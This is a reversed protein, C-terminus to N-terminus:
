DPVRMEARVENISMHLLEAARSEGIIEEELARFVLTRLRQPQETVIEVQENKKGNINFRIFHERFHTESIIGLDKARYVWQQMSMGYKKKLNKLEPYTLSHRREGLEELVTQRPAMFAGSFRYAFKEEDASSDPAYVMHGLEHALTSRQRDGPLGQQLAIFRAGKAMGTFADIKDVNDLQVVKVSRDELIQVLNEVPDSGLNWEERLQEAAEEADSVSDALFPTFSYHQTAPFLSEVVAYRELYESAQELASSLAKKSIGSKKRYRIDTIALSTDVPRFFFEVAVKLERALLILLKSDPMALGAEYKSLAQKTIRNDIKDALQQLSMGSLIRASRFRQAFVERFEMTGGHNVVNYNNYVKDVLSDVV